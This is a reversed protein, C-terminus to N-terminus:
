SSLLMINYSNLYYNDTTWWPNTYCTIPIKKLQRDLCNPFHLILKTLIYMDESNLGSFVSIMHLRETFHIYGVVMLHHSIFKRKIHLWVVDSNHSQRGWACTYAVGNLKEDDDDDKGNDDECCLKEWVGFDKYPYLIFKYAVLFKINTESVNSFQFRFLIEPESIKPVSNTLSWLSIITRSKWM